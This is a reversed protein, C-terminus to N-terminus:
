TAKVIKSLEELDMNSLLKENRIKRHTQELKYIRDYTILGNRIFGILQNKYLETTSRCFRFDM